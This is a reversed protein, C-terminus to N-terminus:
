VTASSILFVAWAVALVALGHGIYADLANGDVGQSQIKPLREREQQGFAM